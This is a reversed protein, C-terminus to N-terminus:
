GYKCRSLVLVMIKRYHRGLRREEASLHSMASLLLAAAKTRRFAEIRAKNCSLYSALLVYNVTGTRNDPNEEAQM